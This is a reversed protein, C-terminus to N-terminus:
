IHELIQNNLDIEEQAIKKEFDNAASKLKEEAAVIKSEIDQKDVKSLDEAVTALVSVESPNIESFGGAVFIKDKVQDGEFIRIVGNKLTTLTQAHGALVGMEGEDGPIVAMEVDASYALKGPTTIEIKFNNSM